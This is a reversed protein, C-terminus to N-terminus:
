QAARMNPWRREMYGDGYRRDLFEEFANAPESQGARASYRLMAAGTLVANCVMVFVLIWTM